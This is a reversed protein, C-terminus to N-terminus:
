IRGIGARTTNPGTKVTLRQPAREAPRARPNGIPRGSPRPRPVSGSWTSMTSSAGASPCKGPRRWGTAPRWWGRSACTGGPPTVRRSATSPLIVTLRLICGSSAAAPVPELEFRLVDDAWRLEMLSPPTFALMEGDFSEGEGQRFAFHLPAGRGRAGEITTPFWAALEAEETLARWVRQQPFALRREYRLTSVDGSRELTGYGDEDSGSM